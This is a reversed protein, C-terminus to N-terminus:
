DLGVRHFLGISVDYLDVTNLKIEKVEITVEM